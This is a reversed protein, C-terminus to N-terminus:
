RRTGLKLPLPPQQAAQRLDPLLHQQPEWSAQRGLVAYTADEVSYGAVVKAEIDAKHEKAAPHTGLVDAFGEAFQAKREAEAVKKEAAERATAEEKVKESLETIREEARNPKPTTEIIPNGNEDVAM